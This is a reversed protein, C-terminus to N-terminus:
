SENMQSFGWSSNRKASNMETFNTTIMFIKTLFFAM